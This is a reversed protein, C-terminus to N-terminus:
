KLYTGRSTNASPPVFLYGHSKYLLSNRVVAFLLRYAPIATFRPATYPPKVTGGKQFFM